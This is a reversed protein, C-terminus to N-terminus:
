LTSLTQFIAAIEPTHAVGPVRSEAADILPKVFAHYKRGITLIRQLMVHRLLVDAEEFDQHNRVLGAFILTFLEATEQIAGDLQQRCRELEDTKGLKKAIALNMRVGQSHELSKRAVGNILNWVAVSDCGQPGREALAQDVIARASLLGRHLMADLTIELRQSSSSWFAFASRVIAKMYDHAEDEDEPRLSTFVGQHGDLLKSMHTPTKAGNQLVACAFLEAVTEMSLPEDPTEGFEGEAEAAMTSPEKVTGGDEEQKVEEKVAVPAKPNRTKTAAPKDPKDETDPKDGPAPM